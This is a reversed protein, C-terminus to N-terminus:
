FILENQVPKTNLKWPLRVTFTTGAGPISQVSIEGHLLKCIEKVISLGLGTGSHERTMMSDGIASSGQRFKEFILKIDEETM